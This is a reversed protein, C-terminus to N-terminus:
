TTIKTKNHNTWGRFECTRGCGLGARRAASSGDAGIASAIAQQGADAYRRARLRDRAAELRGLFQEGVAHVDLEGAIASDNRRRENGFLCMDVLHDAREPLRQLLQLARVRGSRPLPRTVVRYGVISLCLGM